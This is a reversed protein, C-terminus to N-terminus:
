RRIGSLVRCVRSAWQCLMGPSSRVVFGQQVTVSIPVSDPERVTGLPESVPKVFPVVVAGLLRLVRSVHRELYPLVHREHIGSVRVSSASRMPKRGDPGSDSVHPGTHFQRDPECDPKDDPCFAPPDPLRPQDSCEHNGCRGRRPAM